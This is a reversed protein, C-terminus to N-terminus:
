CCKQILLSSCTLSFGLAHWLWLGCGKGSVLLFLFCVFCVLAFLVFTRFASFNGREKGHSTIAVSFPSFFFFFFVLIFYCLALSLVFRRTYYVAFCCLTLSVGPSLWWLILNRYVKRCFHKYILESFTKCLITRDNFESVESPIRAFCILRYHRTLSKATRTPFHVLVFDFDNRKLM